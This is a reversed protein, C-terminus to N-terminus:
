IFSQPIPRPRTTGGMATRVRSRNFNLAHFKGSADPHKEFYRDRVMRPLRLWNQDIRLMLKVGLERLHAFAELTRLMFIEFWISGISERQEPSTTISVGQIYDLILMDSRSHFDACGYFTDGSAFVITSFVSDDRSFCFADVPHIRFNDGERPKYLARYFELEATIREKVREADMLDVAHRWVIADYFGASWEPSVRRLACVTPILEFATEDVPIGASAFAEPIYQQADEVPKFPESLLPVQAAMTALGPNHITTTM